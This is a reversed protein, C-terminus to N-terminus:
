KLGKVWKEITDCTTEINNGKITLEYQYKNEGKKYMVDYYNKMLEEILVEIENNELMNLYREINSESIYKKLNNLSESVEEKWNESVTYEEIINKVRYELDTNILIRKSDRMKNYIYDPILTHGIRKSEGELFILNSNREKLQDYVLSEFTKQSNSKGMGVSGLLSGRHNACEELDLINYGRMKLEKLIKTKGTGTNGQLIIYELEENIIPLENNIYARYGKYGGKLKYLKSGLSTLWTYLVTSRMGGRACFLVVKDHKHELEKITEYIYPLKPAAAKVAMSKAKDTSERVYATGIAKREEDNLIPINISGPITYDEHESESRLDILLYDGDLEQYEVEIYKAM